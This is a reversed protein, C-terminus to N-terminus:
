QILRRYNDNRDLQCEATKERKMKTKQFISNLENDAMSILKVLQYYKGM